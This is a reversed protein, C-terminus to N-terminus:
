APAAPASRSNHGSTSFFERIAPPLRLARSAVAATAAVACEASGASAISPHRRRGELRLQRDDLVEGSEVADAKVGLEPVDRGRLELGFM